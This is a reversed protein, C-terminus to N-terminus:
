TMKWYFTLFADLQMMHQKPKKKVCYIRLIGSKFITYLQLLAFM